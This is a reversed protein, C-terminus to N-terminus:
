PDSFTRLVDFFNSTSTLLRGTQVLPVWAYDENFEDIEYDKQVPYDPPAFTRASNLITRPNGSSRVM